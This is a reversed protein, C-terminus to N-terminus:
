SDIDTTFGVVIIAEDPFLHSFSSDSLCVNEYFQYLNRTSVLMKM